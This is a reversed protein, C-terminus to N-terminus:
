PREGIRRPDSSWVVKHAVGCVLATPIPGDVRSDAANDRNDGMMFWTGPALRYAPTNDLPGDPTLDIIQHSAGNPLTELLLRSYPGAFMQGAALQPALPGLDRIKVPAGNIFLRGDRMQVTDGPGAVVRRIYAVNSGPKHHIVVEGLRPTVGLCRGKSGWVSVIDGERANPSMSTSPISYVGIPGYFWVLAAFGLPALWLAVGAVWRRAGTVDAKEFRRALWAAHAALLVGVVLQAALRAQDMFPGHYLAYVGPPFLQSAWVVALFVALLAILAAATRVSGAYVYGLPPLFFNLAFALFANPRKATATPTM